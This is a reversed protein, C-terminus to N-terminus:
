LERTWSRGARPLAFAPKRRQVQNKHAMDGRFSVAGTKRRASNVM